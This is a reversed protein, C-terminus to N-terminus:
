FLRCCRKRDLFSVFQLDGKVVDEILLTTMENFCREISDPRQQDMCLVKVAKAKLMLETHFLAHEKAWPYELATM